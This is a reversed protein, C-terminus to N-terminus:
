AGASSARLYAEDLAACSPCGLLALSCHLEEYLLDLAQRVAAQRGLAAAYLMPRGVFVLDAGLALAKIADSGQRIGGDFGVFLGQAEKVVAPLAALASVAGDLQRGGHNSVIIGDAGAQRALRAEQPHLVGKLILRGPWHRRIWDIHSWDLRARDRRFEASPTSIIPVGTGDGSFNPLYPIGQHWLTHLMTGLLWRPHCLADFILSPRARVPISFGRRQDAVRKSAVPVDITVVLVTVGAKELRALLPAIATTDGPLYAQYWSQPAQQMITELPVSSAASLIFPHQAQQAAQALVSDAEYAFLACGGMPAIGFPARYTTGWLSTQTDISSVDRLYRPLFSWQEFAARNAQTTLQQESGSQAFTFLFDPLRKQAAREFDQLTLLM